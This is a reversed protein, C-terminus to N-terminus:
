AEIEGGERKGREGEARKKKKDGERRAGSGGAV